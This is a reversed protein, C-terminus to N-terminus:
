RTRRQEVGLSRFPEGTLKQWEAKQESTLVELLRNGLSDWLKKMKEAVQGSTKQFAAPNPGGRVADGMAQLGIKQMENMAEQRIEQLKEMQEKTLKLATSVEPESLAHGGRLQLSIERLRRGQAATLFGDIAEDVEKGMKQMKAPADRMTQMTGAPDGFAALPNQPMLRLLERKHKTELTQVKKRQENTLKLERQVPKQVLAALKHSAYGSSLGNGMGFGGGSGFGAGWGGGTGSGFGIGFGNGKNEQAPPLQDEENLSADPEAQPDADRVKEALEANAQENPLVPPPETDIRAHARDLVQYGCVAGASGLAVVAMLVIATTKLKSLFMAHLVGEALTVARASVAGAATVNGVV